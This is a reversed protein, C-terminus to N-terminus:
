AALDIVPDSPKTALTQWGDVKRMTIQGSALLAWFLMAATEPSPLVTQTKIRRKFEEHLREVANSTRASRWQSSPLRTFTFLREGAEELSDAVGRCKLRWKRLFTRRRQEIEDASQAYIMDTYDASVEEHLHEPAHALLNRHKHVTCRQTPVEPWLAALAKELGAGGDIILFEPTKLGRAVLDDLLTRWAAESEGGMNKVALLVKQGDRRVGLVVLLSISTAKKDLRVRVVTGDLILRVIDEEGLSRKSWAEWDTKVRRWVRSVTDKGIAGKFLAALARRVRRTNTGALYTGAILAEVQRTMRAYRPLVKSKWEDTRGDATVRARPVTIEVPGFSGVLQRERHGHRHGSLPVADSAEVGPADDDHRRREYRGRGLAAALEEEILEEIFSRIRERIGAELPDSWGDGLFLTTEDAPTTSHTRM